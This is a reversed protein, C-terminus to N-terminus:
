KEYRDVIRLYALIMTIVLIMSGLLMFIAIPCNQEVFLLPLGVIEFLTAFVFWLISVARNYRKINEPEIKPPETRTFFGVANKSNLCFIGIIVFVSVTISLVLFGIM